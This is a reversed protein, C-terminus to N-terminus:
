KKVINKSLNMEKMKMELLEGQATKGKGFVQADLLEEEDKELKFLKPSLKEATIGKSARENLERFLQDRKGSPM